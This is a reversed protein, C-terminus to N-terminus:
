SGFGVYQLSLAYPMRANERSMALRTHALPLLTGNAKTEPTGMWIIHKCLKISVPGPYTRPDAAVLDASGWMTLLRAAVQQQLGEVPLKLQAYKNVLELHTSTRHDPLTLTEPGQLLRLFAIVEHAWGVDLELAMRLDSRFVDHFITGAKKVLGNWFRFILGAWHHQMPLRSLEMFVCRNSVNQAGLVRRLFHRQESVIPHEMATDFDLTLCATGWVQAGFSFVSRVCTNYFSLMTHPIHLGAAALRSVLLGTAHKGAELVELWVTASFPGAGYERGLLHAM